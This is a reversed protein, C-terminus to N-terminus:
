SAGNEAMHLVDGLRDPSTACVQDLRAEYASASSLLEPGLRAIGDGQHPRYGSMLVSTGAPRDRRHGHDLSFSAPVAFRSTVPMRLRSNQDSRLARMRPARLVVCPRHPAPAVARDQKWSNTIM